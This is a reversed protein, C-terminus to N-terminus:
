KKSLENGLTLLGSEPELLPKEEQLEEELSESWMEVTLCKVEEWGQAGGGM